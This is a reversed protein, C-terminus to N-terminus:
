LIGETNRSKIKESLASLLALAQTYDYSKLLESARCLCERDDQPINLRLLTETGSLAKTVNFSEAFGCIENVAALYEEYGLSIDFVAKDSAENNGLYRDASDLLARFANTFDERSSVNGALEAPEKAGICALATGLAESAATYEEPTAAELEALRTRGNECIVGLARRFREESGSFLREALKLDVGAIEAAAIGSKKEENQQLEKPIWRRMVANLEATNIPKALFDNMGANVFLDSMGKIANATLAIIPISKAIENELARIKKATEIGDMGPMLHDMFVLDFHRGSKILELAEYGSECLTIEAGYSSLLGKAVKLNIVNDDVVMIRADPCFFSNISGNDDAELRKGEIVSALSFLNVPKRDYLMGSISSEDAGTVPLMAVPIIGADSLASRKEKVEDIYSKYDFMLFCKKGKDSLEAAQSVTDATKFPLGLSQAMRVLSDLLYQNPELLLLLKEQPNEITVCPSIDATRQQVTVTFTSGEGYTSELTIAGNMMKALRLSIALGLGTGQASRTRNSDVQTFESFLRQKDEEKIGIGTDSVAFILKATGDTIGGCSISLSIRGSTTFKAANGLLNILIQRIRLEDGILAAPVDPSVNVTFAVPKGAIRACILASIDTLMKNIGYREESLEMRGADIKSFDLIDNIINLLNESSSKITSVYEMNLPSLESHSLLEAMGCIANMPTRIEHSMTALFDSKAKDSAEAKNKKEEVLTLLENISETQSRARKLQTQNWRILVLLMAIAIYFTSMKIIFDPIPNMGTLSEMFIDQWFFFYGIYMLTIYVAEALIIVIDSYLASFSIITILTGHFHTVERFVVGYLTTWVLMLLGCLLGHVRYPVKEHFTPILTIFPIMAAYVRLYGPMGAMFYSVVIFFVCYLSLITYILKPIIRKEDEMPPMALIENLSIPNKQFTM